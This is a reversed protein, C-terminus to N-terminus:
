DDQTVLYYYDQVPKDWCHINTSNMTGSRIQQDILMQSTISLVELPPLKRELKNYSKKIKKLQGAKWLAEKELELLTEAWDESDTM